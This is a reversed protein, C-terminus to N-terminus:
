ASNLRIIANFFFNNENIPTCDFNERAHLCIHTHSYSLPFRRGRQRENVCQPTWLKTWTSVPWKYKTEHSYFVDTQTESHKQLGSSSSTVCTSVDPLEWTSPSLVARCLLFFTCRDVFQQFIGLYIVRATVDSFGRFFNVSAKLEKLHEGREELYRKMTM